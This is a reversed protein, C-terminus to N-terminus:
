KFLVFIQYAIWGPFILFLISNLHFIETGTASLYDFGCVAYQNWYTMGYKLFNRIFTLYLPLHSDGLDHIRIYSYPGIGIYELGVWIAFLIFLLYKKEKIKNVIIKIKNNM